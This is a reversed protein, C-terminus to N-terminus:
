PIYIGQQAFSRDDADGRIGNSGSDDVRVRFVQFVAARQELVAGPTVADATTSAACTSGTASSATVTCNAPVLFQFDEATAAWRRVHGNFTDSLRLKAVLSVDPGAANPAYDAGTARNQVDTLNLALSIDAEDAPTAPDGTVATFSGSGSGLPGIRAATGPVYGPPNCSLFNLPPGHTSNTGGRASCQTSSITQRLAPVLSVSLPTASAPRDYNPTVIRVQGTNLAVYYMSGDPGFIVDVPGGAGTVFASPTGIDDRAANPVARYINSSIYDGFFYSGAHPGFGAPAFAGGIITRGLSGTGSLPYTFVPDVDGPQQCGAPETGECRPWAYNGGATIIDLEEWASQGVDGLWLRGTQPDFGFRFPNRLGYAFIEPRAGPTGIFPNGAAPAGSLELRLVKGNLSSLDQAYPNTSAGPPGMDGLGTDGVSVYLKNDPGIRLGGANHNGNDTRIGSLLETLSGPAVTGGSMTVRVVQNFRDTASACGAPAPKTRYLYIHGNTAFNPDVAVGLLGMESDTCVPISILNQVNGGSVMRLMGTRETVLLEGSPLFAVATPQTFGSAVLSDTFGAPATGAQASPAMVPLSVLLCALALLARRGM